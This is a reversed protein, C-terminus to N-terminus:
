CFVKKQICNVLIILKLCAVPKFFLNFFLFFSTWCEILKFHGWIKWLSWIVCMHIRIHMFLAIWYFLSFAFSSDRKSNITVLHSQLISQTSFYTTIWVMLTQFQISSMADIFHNFYVQECNQYMKKPSQSQKTTAWLLLCINYQIIYTDLSRISLCVCVCVSLGNYIYLRIVTMSRTLIYKIHYVIDSIRM